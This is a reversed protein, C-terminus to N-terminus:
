RLTKNRVRGEINKVGSRVRIRAAQRESIIEMELRVNNKSDNKNLGDQETKNDILFLCSKFRRLASKLIAPLQLSEINGKLVKAM